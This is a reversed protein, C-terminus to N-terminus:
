EEAGHSRGAQSAQDSRFYPAQVSAARSTGPPAVVAGYGIPRHGEFDREETKSRSPGGIRDRAIWLMLIVVGVLFVLTEM